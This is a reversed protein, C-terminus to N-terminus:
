PTSTLTDLVHTRVFGFHDWVYRSLLRRGCRGQEVVLVAAPGPPSAAPGPPSAGPVAAPGPPFAGPVAASGPPSAGPAAAPGPPSAGPVAAPGPPSAGPVAAPPPEISFDLLEGVLRSGLWLPRIRGHVQRFAFLRRAPRPDYRTPKVVGVLADDEGDGDVDGVAFAFTPYPLPWVDTGGSTTLLLRATTDTLAELRFGSVAPPHPAAAAQPAPAAAAQPPAAAPHAAAPAQPAPAAATIAATMAALFVVLCSAAGTHLRGHRKLANAIANLRQM